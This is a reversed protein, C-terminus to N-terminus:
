WPVRLNKGPDGGLFLHGEDLSTPLASEQPNRLHRQPPNYRRPVAEKYHAGQGPVDYHAMRGNRTTANPHPVRIANPRDHMGHIDLNINGARCEAIIEAEGEVYTGDRAMRDCYSSFTGDPALALNVYPEFDAANNRMFRVTEIRIGVHFQPDGFLIVSLVHFFCNGGAGCEKAELQKAALNVNVIQYIAESSLTVAGGGGSGGGSQGDDDAPASPSRKLAPIITATGNNMPSMRPDPRSLGARRVPLAVAHEAAGRNARPPWWYVMGEGDGHDHFHWGDESQLMKENVPQGVLSSGSMGSSGEDYVWVAPPPNMSERLTRLITIREVLAPDHLFCLRHFGALQSSVAPDRLVEDWHRALSVLMAVDM